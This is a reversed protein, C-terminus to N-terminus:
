SKTRSAALKEHHEGFIENRIRHATLTQQMEWLAELVADKIEREKKQAQLKSVIYPGIAAGANRAGEALDFYDDWDMRITIAKKEEM